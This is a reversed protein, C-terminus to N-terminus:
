LNIDVNWDIPDLGRELLAKNARSFCRSGLFPKNTKTAGLPSPHSSCIVAHKKNSFICEAKKSAPKGWLLFVLGNKKGHVRDLVKIVEDTYAEWGKRAHSNAEGKRVTLVANLLLVGQMAWDQLHGHTPIKEFSPVEPDNLLEKYINRLSPPIAIGKRVSFCLGHGQGPGHYPDQGVIVVKVKDLPTSNLCSFTDEPPPYITKKPDNRELTIFKSLRAFSPGSTHNQLSKCWTLTADIDEPSAKKDKYSDLHCLLDEVEPIISLAITASSTKPRKTEGPSIKSDTEDENRRKKRTDARVSGPCM